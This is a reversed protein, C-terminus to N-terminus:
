IESSWFFISTFTYFHRSFLLQYTFASIALCSSLKVLPPSLELSDRKKQARSKIALKTLMSYMTLKPGRIISATAPISLPYLYVSVTTSSRLSLKSFRFSDNLPKRIIVRRKNTFGVFLRQLYIWLLSTKYTSTIHWRVCRSSSLDTLQDTTQNTPQNTPQKTLQDIPRDRFHKFHKFRGIGVDKKMGINARLVGEWMWKWKTTWEIDFQFLFINSISWLM